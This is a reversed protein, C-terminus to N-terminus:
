KKNTTISPPPPPRATEAVATITEIQNHKKMAHRKIDHKRKSKYSCHRCLFIRERACLNKHMLLSHPEVFYEGCACYVTTSDALIELKKIVRNNNNNNAIKIKRLKNGNGTIGSKVQRQSRQLQQRQQQQQQPLSIQYVANYLVPLQITTSSSSSPIM